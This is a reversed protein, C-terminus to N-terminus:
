LEYHDYALLHLVNMIQLIKIFEWRLKYIYFQLYM